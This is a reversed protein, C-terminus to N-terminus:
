KQKHCPINHYDILFFTNTGVVQKTNPSPGTGIGQCLQGLENTYLTDWTAKYRPDCQLQCHELFKGTSPGLVLLAQLGSMQTLAQCFYAFRDIEAPHM